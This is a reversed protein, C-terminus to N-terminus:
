MHANNFILAPINWCYEEKKLDSGALKMMRCPSQGVAGKVAIAKIDEETKHGKHDICYELSFQIAM